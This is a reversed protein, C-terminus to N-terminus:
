HCVFSIICLKFEFNPDVSLMRMAPMGGIEFLFTEEIEPHLNDDSHHTHKKPSDCGIVFVTFYPMRLQLESNPFGSFSCLTQIINM